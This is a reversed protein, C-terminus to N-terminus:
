SSFSQFQRCYSEKIEKGLLSPSPTIPFLAKPSRKEKRDEETEKRIEKEKKGKESSPRNAKMSLSIRKRPLDVDLVTVKVKQHVKVVEAPDKVFRDALESIHVLGDQHVGIDVFVGFATINTVIGPLKMGPKVDEIKEVGEAFRVIEFEERPDRGPKALEALIDQLTPLGVQESVYRNIDIKKRLNEDGMLDIVSCGLDSAM